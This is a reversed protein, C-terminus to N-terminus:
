AVAVRSLLPELSPDVHVGPVSRISGDENLVHVLTWDALFPVPRRRVVDVLGEFTVLPSLSDSFNALFALTDRQEILVREGWRQEQEREVVEIRLRETAQELATTRDRVRAELERQAGRLAQESVRLTREVAVRDTVDIAHGLVYPGDPGHSLVNRY